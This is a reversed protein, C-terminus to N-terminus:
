HNVEAQLDEAVEVGVPSAQLNLVCVFHQVNIKSVLQEVLLCM